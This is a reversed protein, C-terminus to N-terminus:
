RQNQAPRLAGDQSGEPDPPPANSSPIAAGRGPVGRPGPAPRQQKPSPAGVARSRIALM